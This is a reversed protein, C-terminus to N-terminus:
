YLTLYDRTFNFYLVKILSTTVHPPSVHVNFLLLMLSLSSMNLILTRRPISSPTESIKIVIKSPWIYYSPTPQFLIAMDVSRNSVHLNFTKVSHIKVAGLSLHLTHTSPGPLKKKLKTHHNWNIKKQGCPARHVFYIWFPYPFMILSVTPCSAM